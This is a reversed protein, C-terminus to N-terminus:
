RRTPMACRSSSSARTKPYRSAWYLLPLNLMCDIITAGAIHIPPADKVLPLAENGSGWARIFGGAPNYRGALLNAAHLGRQKSRENGTLRYDAVATHLWMFGVDHHLNIYEALAADFKEEVGEAAQRYKEEGTAHYMQWLMGPWFGNTWWTLRRSDGWDDYKGDKPIYPIASGVRDCEASLKAKLKEYTEELWRQDEAPLNYNM